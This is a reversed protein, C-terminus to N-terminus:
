WEKKNYFNNEKCWEIIHKHGNTYANIELSHGVDFEVTVM